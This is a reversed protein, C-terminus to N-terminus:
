IPISCIAIQDFYQEPPKMKANLVVQYGSVAM